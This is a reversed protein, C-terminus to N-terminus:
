SHSHRSNKSDKVIGEPTHLRRMECVGSIIFFFGKSTADFYQRSTECICLSKYIYIFTLKKLNDLISEFM